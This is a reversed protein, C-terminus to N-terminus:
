VDPYIISLKGVPFLLLIPNTHVSNNNLAPLSGNKQRENAAQHLAHYTGTIITAQKKNWVTYKDPEPKM